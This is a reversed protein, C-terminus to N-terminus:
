AVEVRCLGGGTRRVPFPSRLFLLLNYFLNIHGYNVFSICCFSYFYFFRSRSDGFYSVTLLISYSTSITFLSGAVCYEFCFRALCLEVESLFLLFVCDTLFM